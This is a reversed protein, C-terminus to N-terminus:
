SSGSSIDDQAWLHRKNAWLHTYSFDGYGFLGNCGLNGSRLGGLDGVIAPLAVNIITTDLTAVFMGTILAVVIIVMQPHEISTGDSNRIDQTQLNNESM